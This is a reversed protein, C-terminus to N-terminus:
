VFAPLFYVSEAALYILILSLIYLMFFFFIM